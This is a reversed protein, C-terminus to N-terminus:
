DYLTVKFIEHKVLQEPTFQSYNFNEKKCVKEFEKSNTIQYSDIYNRQTRGRLFSPVITRLFNITKKSIGRFQREKPICLLSNIFKHVDYYSSPVNDINPLFERIKVNKFIPYISNFDFDNLLVLYNFGRLTYDKGNINEYSPNIKDDHDYILLNGIHLDNHRYNPYRKYITCLTLLVQMIIHLLHKDGYERKKLNSELSGLNAFDTYTIRVCRPPIFSDVIKEKFEPVLDSVKCAYSFIPVTINNVNYSRLVKFLEKHIIWEINEPRESRPATEFRPDYEVVRIVMPPNCATNVCAKYVTGYAGKGIEKRMFKSTNYQCWDKIDKVINQLEKLRSKDVLDYNKMTRGKSEFIDRIALISLYQSKSM